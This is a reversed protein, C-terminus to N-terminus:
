SKEGGGGGGGRRGSLEDGRAGRKLLGEVQEGARRRLLVRLKEIMGRVIVATEVTDYCLALNLTKLPNTREGLKKPNLKGKAEVVGMKSAPSLITAGVIKGVEKGKRGRERQYYGLGEKIMRSGDGAHRLSLHLWLGDVASATINRM